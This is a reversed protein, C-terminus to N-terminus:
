LVMGVHQDSLRSPILFALGQLFAFLNSFHLPHLIILPPFRSLGHGSIINQFYMRPRQKLTVKQSDNGSLPNVVAVLLVVRVM